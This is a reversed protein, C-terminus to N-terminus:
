RESMAGGLDRREERRANGKDLFCSNMNQRHLMIIMVLLHWLAAM